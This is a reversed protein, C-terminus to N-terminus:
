EDKVITSRSDGRLVDAMGDFSDNVILNGADDREGGRLLGEQYKSHASECCTSGVIELVALTRFARYRRCGLTYDVVNQHPVVDTILPMMRRSRMHILNTLEATSLENSM